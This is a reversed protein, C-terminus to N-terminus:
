NYLGALSQPLASKLARRRAADFRQVGMIFDKPRGHRNIGLMSLLRAQLHAVQSVPHPADMDHTFYALYMSDCVTFASQLFGPM